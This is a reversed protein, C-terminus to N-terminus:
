KRTDSVTGCLYCIFPGTCPMGDRARYRWSHKLGAIPTAPKYTALTRPCDEKDENM